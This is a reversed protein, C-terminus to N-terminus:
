LEPHLYLRVSDCGLSPLLRIKRSRYGGKGLMASSQQIKWRPYINYKWSAEWVMHGPSNCLSQKIHNSTALFAPQHFHGRRTETSPYQVPLVNNHKCEWSLQYLWHASLQFYWLYISLSTTESVVCWICPSIQLVCLLNFWQGIVCYVYSRSKQSLTQGTVGARTRTVDRVHRPPAHCNDMRVARRKCQPHDTSHTICRFRLSSLPMSTHLRPFRIVSRPPSYHIAIAVCKWL